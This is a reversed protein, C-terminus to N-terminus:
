LVKKRSVLDSPIVFGVPQFLDTERGSKSELGKKM